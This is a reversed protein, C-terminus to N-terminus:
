EINYVVYRGFKSIGSNENDTGGDYIDKDSVPITRITKIKPEFESFFSIVFLKIINTINM